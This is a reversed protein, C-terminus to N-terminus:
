IDKEALTYYVGRGSEGVQIVLGEEELEDLYKLATGTSIDLLDEVEERTIGENGISIDCAALKKQQEADEQLFELIRQKRDDTRKELADHSAKQREELEEENPNLFTSNVKRKSALYVGIIIGLSGVVIM